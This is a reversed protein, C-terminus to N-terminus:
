AGAGIRAAVRKLADVALEVDRDTVAYSMRFYGPRGFGSGPVVLMREALCLHVFEVDDMEPDPVKPFIYFAGEPRVFDYGAEELAELLLARKGEYGDLPVHVDLLGEIMRQQLAPANVFGLTRNAFTLALEIEESDETAHNVAIYGIREGPMALDKSFSTVHITDRYFKVPWPVDVGDYRIARYPEDSIMYIPQGHKKSARTLVDALAEFDAASYVVGTPNNPSNVVIARTRRTIAAEIAKPDPRFQDDTDVLVMRGGHNTIYFKYEVFFPALVIVEDGPDLLAKFIANLAGGAGVTMIIQPSEYPIGTQRRLYEAVAARTSKFGGNPMYRHMGPTEDAALLKLREIVEPPPELVPNGLALDSVNEVGLEKKLQLGQTFMKRIWSSGKM